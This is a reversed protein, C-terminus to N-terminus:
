TDDRRSSPLRDNSGIRSRNRIMRGRDMEWDDQTKDAPRNLTYKKGKKDLPIFEIKLDKLKNELIDNLEKGVEVFKRGILRITGDIVTINISDRSVATRGLLKDLWEPNSKKTRKKSKPKKIM